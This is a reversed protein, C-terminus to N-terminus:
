KTKNKQVSIMKKLLEFEQEFNPTLIEKGMSEEIKSISWFKGDVVEEENFKVPKDTKTIFSYVLEEEVDSSWVYKMILQADFHELNVEEKAERKLAVDVSEGVSIHGGVASDWKNPQIKKFPPRKQLYIENKRNLIHLHVVPHMLRDKHAISRPARGTIKGESDVIPLWEEKKYKRKQIIIQLFTGAFYLGALIYFLGGSIFAWAANSMYFASYFILLTHTSFLFFIAKMSRQIHVRHQTTIEIGKMYRGSMKIMLDPNIFASIALVICLILEILAPKLKFFLDNDLLLSVGGLIVLLLTDIIVYKDFRKEKIYIGFFQVIGVAVAVILGTKTGWLADAVIFVFLPIFGILMNIILARREM